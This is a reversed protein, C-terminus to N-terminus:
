LMCRREADQARKQLCWRDTPFISPPWTRSEVGAERRHAALAPAGAIMLHLVLWVGNDMGIAIRKGVRRLQVVRHGEAQAIPPQVTRLLFISAIRVQELPQGVIRSELAHLYAASTPCNLCTVLKGTRAAPPM